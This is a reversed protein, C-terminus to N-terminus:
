RGARKGSPVVPGHSQKGKSRGRDQFPFTSPMQLLASGRWFVTTEGSQTGAKMNEEAKGGESLLHWFIPAFAVCAKLRDPAAAALQLALTGASSHGAVYVRKPDIQPYKALAADLATLGDSVGFRAKM